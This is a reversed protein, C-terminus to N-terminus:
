SRPVLTERFADQELLLLVDQVTLRGKRGCVKRIFTPAMGVLTAVQEFPFTATLGEYKDRGLTAVETQPKIDPLTKARISSASGKLAPAHNGNNRMKIVRQMTVQSM